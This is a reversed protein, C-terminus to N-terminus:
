KQQILKFIIPKHPHDTPLNKTDKIATLTILTLAILLIILKIAQM